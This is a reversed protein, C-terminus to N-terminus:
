EGLPPAHSQERPGHARDGYTARERPAPVNRVRAPSQTDMIDRLLRENFTLSDIFWDSSSAESASAPPAVPLASPRPTLTSTSTPSSPRSREVVNLSPTPSTELTPSQSDISPALPSRAARPLSPGPIPSDSHRLVAINSDFANFREMSLRFHDMRELPSSVRPSSDGISPLPEVGEMPTYVNDAEASTHVTSLPGDEDAESTRRIAIAASSSPGGNNSSSSANNDSRPRKAREGSSSHSGEAGNSRGGAPNNLDLGLEDFSRKFSNSESPISVNIRPCRDGM